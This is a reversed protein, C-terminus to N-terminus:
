CGHLHDFADVKFAIPLDPLMEVVTYTIVSGKLILPLMSIVLGFKIFAAVFTWGERINPYKGFTLILVSAIM